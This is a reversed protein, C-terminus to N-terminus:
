KFDSNPFFNRSRNPIYLFPTAEVRPNVKQSVTQCGYVLFFETAIIIQGQLIQEYFKLDSPKDKLEIRLELQKKWEYEVQKYEEESLWTQLQHSQANKVVSLNVM